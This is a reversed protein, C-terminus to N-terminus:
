VKKLSEYLLKICNKCEGSKSFLKAFVKLDLKMLKLGKKFVRLAPLKISNKSKGSKSFLKAFVKIGIRMLKFM